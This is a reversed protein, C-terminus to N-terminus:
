SESPRHQSEYMEVYRRVEADVDIASGSGHGSVPRSSVIALKRTAPRSGRSLSVLADAQVRTLGSRGLASENWVVAVTVVESPSVRSGPSPSVGVPATWSM